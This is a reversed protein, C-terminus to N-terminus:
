NGRPQKKVAQQLANVVASFEIPKTLHATFGADKTRKEDEPQGSDTMAVAPNNSKAPPKSIVCIPRRDCLYSLDVPADLAAVLGHQALLAITM